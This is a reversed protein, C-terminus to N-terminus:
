KTAMEVHRQGFYGNVFVLHKDGPETLNAVICEWAASGTGSVPLTLKNETQWV